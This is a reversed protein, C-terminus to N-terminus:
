AQSGEGGSAKAAAQEQKFIEQAKVIAEKEKEAVAKNGTEVADAFFQDNRLTPIGHYDPPIEYDKRGPWGEWDPPNMIRRLDPHGKFDIGYLDYAEREFFDAMGWLSVVSTVQPKERGLVVKVTFKHLHKLSHLPYIVWLEHGNDAGVLSMLSDFGLEPAEKLHKLVEFVDVAPVIAFPDGNAVAPAEIGPWRKKLHEVIANFDM